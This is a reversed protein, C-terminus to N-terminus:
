EKRGRKVPYCGTHGCDCSILQGGCNPCEEQDCGPHHIKGAKVNCDGCDGKARVPSLHKDGEFVERRNRCSVAIEMDKKCFKCRAM